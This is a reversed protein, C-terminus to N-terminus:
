QVKFNLDEQMNPTALIFDHGDSNRTGSPVIAKAMSSFNISFNPAVMKEITFDFEYGVSLSDAIYKCIGGAMPIEKISGILVGIGAINFEELGTVYLLEGADPITCQEITYRLELASNTKSEEQLARLYTAVPTVLERLKTAPPLITSMLNKTNGNSAMDIIAEYGELLVELNIREMRYNVEIEFVSTGSRGYLREFIELTERDHCAAVTCTYPSSICSLEPIKGRCEIGGLLSTLIHVAHRYQPISNVKIVFDPRDNIRAVGLSHVIAVKDGGSDVISTVTVPSKEEIVRDLVNRLATLDKKDDVIYAINSVERSITM